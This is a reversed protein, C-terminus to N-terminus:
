HENAKLQAIRATYYIRRDTDSDPNLGFALMESEVLSDFVALREAFRELLADAPTTELARM